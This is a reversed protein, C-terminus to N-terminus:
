PHRDNSVSGKERRWAFPVPHPMVWLHRMNSVNVIDKDAPYVELADLHGRGCERKLRQLDDWPIKDTWRGQDFDIQTRCVTLRITQPFETAYVQVLYKSSRWVELLGKPRTDPWRDEPILQLVEHQLERNSQKLYRETLTQNKRREHRNM